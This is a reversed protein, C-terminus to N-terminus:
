TEAAALEDLLLLTVALERVSGLAKTLRRIKGRAKGAKTGKVGTTLVPVAERLRRSAVRAQHVGHVNGDRAEALHRKLAGARLALLRGTIRSDRRNM